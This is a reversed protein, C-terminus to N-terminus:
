HQSSEHVKRYHNRSLVKKCGPIRCPFEAKEHKDKRHKNYNYVKGYDRNCDHCFTNRPTRTTTTLSQPTSTSSSSHITNPSITLPSLSSKYIPSNSLTDSGIGENSSTIDMETAEFPIDSFTTQHVSLTPLQNMPVIHVFQKFGLYVELARYNQQLSYTASWHTNISHLQSQVNQTTTLDWHPM